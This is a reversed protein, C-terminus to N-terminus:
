DVAYGAAQAAQKLAKGFPELLSSLPKGAVLETIVSTSWVPQDPYSVLNWGPWIQDAAAKLAPTPDAAYYPNAAQQELWKTALPAYAPYGPRADAGSPNFVTTAWTVFDAATTLNTSHRSMIWPGGGVQGTTVPTDTGWQLPPAATIQKAPVHLAQDFVAQAYWSPGPMLLVKSDAGGYKQAFDPTFVSLPPVTGNKILPDLLGAVRTCHSDTADIHVSTGHVQELPCQNGWLYIWHSFSDGVNGVIYGPHETAVKEGLSAWEQWTKPVAYHFRDMLTKNVWLVVQALNDQVCYQTGNITCQATSSAPWQGLVDQKLLDKVPAAFEFPKQAMWVPDNVQESFLVDPWGKGTRNWLQIKTQLTTAGNGDGDFTVINAHVQPHAKAYAQAVPLRAADVWITLDGGVTGASNSGSPSTGTSTSCGAVAMAAVIVVLWRRRQIM